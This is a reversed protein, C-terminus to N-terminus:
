DNHKGRKPAVKKPMKDFNWARAQSEWERKPVEYINRGEYHTLLIYHDRGKGVDIISRWRGEYPIYDKLIGVRIWKHSETSCDYAVMKGIYGPRMIHCIVAGHSEIYDGPHLDGKETKGESLDFLDFLTMQQFM